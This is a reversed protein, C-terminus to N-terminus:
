WGGGGGGGGGGGSSGGGGSASSAGPATASSSIAAGLSSGLQSSFGAIQSVNFASGAYWGPSYNPAQMEFVSAFRQAWKQEVGLALAAPLYTEYLLPTLPPPPRTVRKLDEGEAVELYMKFGEIHDMAQRGAVTPAKLLKGFVGNAVLGCVGAGLTLWGAATTFYWSPWAGSAGPLSLAAIGILISFIVGLAHWGGNIKFFGSSYRRKLSDKHETRSDGIVSYNAQKLELMDGTEFLQSLLTQEDESLPRQENGSQTERILTFSKGIGLVGNDQVIRLYGKVALSLVAAAFCTNDYGMRQLYRMSAASQTKQMEYEPIIVRGPPDRGVRIWISYYYFLLLALGGLAIFVPARTHPLRRHLVAEAISDYSEAHGADRQMDYGPSTSVMPSPTASMSSSATVHGKPFSVVITLGEHSDLIRTTRFLPAGRDVSDEYDKGKAGQPGTYADLTVEDSPIGDPLIVRASASEVSFDWGNGTVNWYLEDHDAFFGMQRDTVYALDYTHEGSELMRSASGLYVRVGNQQNETRWPEPQGDRAASEFQFGVVIQRGDVASYITPFDRYIGRRIRQGEANVVIHEHVELTGDVRVTITSDFALIREYAQAPSQGLFTGLLALVASKYIHRIV